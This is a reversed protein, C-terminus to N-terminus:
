GASLREKAVEEGVWTVFDHDTEQELGELWAKLPEALMTRSCSWTESELGAFLEPWPWSEVVMPAWASTLTEETVTSAGAAAETLEGKLTETWADNCLLPGKPGTLVSAERM